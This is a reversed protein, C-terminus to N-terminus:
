LVLSNGMLPSSHMAMSYNSIRSGLSQILLGCGFMVTAFVGTLNIMVSHSM